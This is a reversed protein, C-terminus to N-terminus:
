RGAKESDAACSDGSRRGEKERGPGDQRERLESRAALYFLYLDDQLPDPLMRMDLVPLLYRLMLAIEGTRRASLALHSPPAGSM